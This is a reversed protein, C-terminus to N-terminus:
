GGKGQPSSFDAELLRAARKARTVKTASLRGRYGGKDGVGIFPLRRQFWAAFGAYNGQMIRSFSKKNGESEIAQAIISACVLM